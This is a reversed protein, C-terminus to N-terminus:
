RGTELSNFFQNYADANWDAASGAITLMAPSGDNAPFVGMVQRMGKGSGDTGEMITLTVTEGNIVVEDTDIFSMQFDGQGTQQSFAEQMQRQMEAESIAVSSPFQMLMFVMGNHGDAPVIMVIKMGAFSMAGEETYGDPLDYDLISQAVEAAEGSDETFATEMFQEAMRPMVLALVGFVLCCVVILGAIIGLVIKLEKSM